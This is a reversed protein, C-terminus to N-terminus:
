CCCSGEDATLKTVHKEVEKDTMAMKHAVKGHNKVIGLVEKKDHSQVMFSCEPGCQALYNVQKM